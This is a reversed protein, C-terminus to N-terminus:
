RSFNCYTVYKFRDGNKTPTDFVRKVSTPSGAAIKNPSIDRTVLILVWQQVMELVSHPLICVQEGSRFLV